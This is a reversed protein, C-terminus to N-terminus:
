PKLFIKIWEKSITEWGYDKAFKQGKKSEKEWKEEDQMMSLLQKLYEKQIEEKKIDGSLKIGSGVTEQLAALSMTVPVLGDHAADLATICNIEQFDTPYAWM